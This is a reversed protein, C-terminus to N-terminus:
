HSSGGNQTRSRAPRRGKAKRLAVLERIDDCVPKDSCTNCDYDMTCEYTGDLRRVLGSRRIDRGIKTVQAAISELSAVDEKCSTVFLVEMAEVKPLQTKCIGMMARGLTEFDFGKEVAAKSVRSWVRQPVSRLMYGEIQDFVYQSRDLAEQDEEELASGGLMLIQAFPLSRGGSEGIDPGVLTITGDRVLGPDDSWLVFACSATNPNGLEVFTDERLIIGSSAGPGVRVPLGELADSPIAPCHIEQLLGHKARMTEVYGRVQEFYPDFIAM